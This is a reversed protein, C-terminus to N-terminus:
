KSVTIVTGACPFDDGKKLSQNKIQYEPPRLPNFIVTTNFGAAQWQSQISPTADSQQNKFDPVKCMPIPALVTFTKTTTSTGLPNTVTLEVTWTGAAYSKSPPNKATSTTGDGFKWAYTTPNNASTSTNNFSVSSPATPSSLSVTFNAVPGPPNTIVITKSTTNPTVGNSVTLTPHYTGPVTYAQPPPDKLTSDITGDGDFDWAYSVITGTSSNTFTITQPAVGGTSDITFIAVVPAPGGAPVGAIVGKRIPFVASSSVTVHNGLIASIIPTFIKFSCSVQVTANSGLATDPTYTPPPLPAPPTCNTATADDTVLKNYTAVAVPDGSDLQDANSAAYNAAIRATNNLNIWGLFVRGFDIGGFILLLFVPLM